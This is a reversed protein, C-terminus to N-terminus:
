NRAGAYSISYFYCFFKRLPKHCNMFVFKFTFEDFSVLSQFVEELSKAHINSEYNIDCKDFAKALKVASADSKNQIYINQLPPPCHSREKESPLYRQVLM